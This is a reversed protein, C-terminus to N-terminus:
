IIRLLLIQISPPMLLSIHCPPTNLRFLPQLPLKFVTILGTTASLLRIALNLALKFLPRTDPFGNRGGHSGRYGHGCNGRYGHGHGQQPSFQGNNQLLLHKPPSIPMNLPRNIPYVLRMLLCFVMFRKLFYHTWGLPLPPSLLTM